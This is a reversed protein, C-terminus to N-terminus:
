FPDTWKSEESHSGWSLNQCTGRKWNSSWHDDTQWSGSWEYDCSITLTLNIEKEWSRSSAHYVDRRKARM